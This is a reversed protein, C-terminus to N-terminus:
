KEPHYTAVVRLDLITIGESDYPRGKDDYSLNDENYDALDPESILVQDTESAFIMEAESMNDARVVYCPPDFCDQVALLYFSKAEEDLNIGTARKADLGYKERFQFFDLPNEEVVYLTKGYYDQFVVATLKLGPVEM